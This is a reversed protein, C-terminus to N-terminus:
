ITPCKVGRYKEIRALNKSVKAILKKAEETTFCVGNVDVYYLLRKDELVSFSGVIFDKRVRLYKQPLTKM